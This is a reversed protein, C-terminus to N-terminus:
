FLLLLLILNIGISISTHNLNVGSNYTYQAVSSNANSYFSHNESITGKHKLGFNSNAEIFFYNYFRLRAGIQGSFKKESPHIVSVDDTYLDGQYYFQYSSTVENSSIASLGFKLYTDLVIPYNDNRPFAHFSASIGTRLGWIRYGEESITSLYSGFDGITPDGSASAMDTLIANFSGDVPIGIEMFGPIRGNLKKLQILGGLEIGAGSGGGMKGTEYFADHYYDSNLIAEGTPLSSYESNTQIINLSMYAFSSNLDYNSRSGKSKTSKNSSNNNSNSNNQTSQNKAREEAQRKAEAERRAQEDALRKSEVDRKAKEDALRKAEADRKAQEEALRKAEADKKANEEALRKEEAEKKAKEEAVIKEQQRKTREALILQESKEFEAAESENKVCRVACFNERRMEQLSYGKEGNLIVFGMSHLAKGATMTWYYAADGQSLLEMTEGEFPLYGNADANFYGTGTNTKWGGLTSQYYQDNSLAKIDDLEPISYGDPALQREDIIAYYNYLVGDEISEGLKYYAPIQNANCFKWNSESNAEMLPDGNRFTVVHLDEISWDTQAQFSFFLILFGAVLIYKQFVM